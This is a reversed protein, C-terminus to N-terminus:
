HGVQKRVRGLKGRVAARDLDAHLFPARAHADAYVVAPGANGLSEAAADEAAEGLGIGGGGALFAAGAEAERDRLPQHLHHLSVDAELAAFAAARGEPELKRAM